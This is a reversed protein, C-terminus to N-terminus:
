ADCMLWGDDALLTLSAERWAQAASASRAGAAADATIDAIGSLAFLHDFSRNELMLVFVHKIRDQVAPDAPASPSAPAADASM